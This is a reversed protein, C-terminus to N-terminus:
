TAASAASPIAASLFCLRRRLHAAPECQVRASEDGELAVVPCDDSDYSTRLLVLNTKRGWGADHTLNPAIAGALSPESAQEARVRHLDHREIVFTCARRALEASDRACRVDDIRRDDQAGAFAAV